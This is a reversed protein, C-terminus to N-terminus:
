PSAQSQALVGNGSFTGYSFEISIFLVRLAQVAAADDLLATKNEDTQCRHANKVLRLQMGQAAGVGM